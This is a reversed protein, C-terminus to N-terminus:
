RYYGNNDCTKREAICNKTRKNMADADWMVFADGHMSSASKGQPDSSLYYGAKTGKAGYQIDFTIAPIRVPHSAPCGQEDGYKVHDKHNPSDLNKGDWCDPFQMMFHLTAPEGCIPWNGNTSRAIGDLDGPGYFACYFQGQAGRPTPVKKKADGAIMRLGNPMPMVDSSSKRLSRYYVRFGTTEVPKKTANDYLTPVWYASHDLVPKCTTATFKMLDGATTDADVAKNGVFSHMHSAGALGPFVIPDDARRHSYQCDARFEPLDGVGSPVPDVKRAKYANVQKQWAARDVPIWGGRPAPATAAATTKAPRAAPSTSTRAAPTPVAAASTPPPTPAATGAVLVDGAPESEGKSGALSVGAAAVAVVAVGACVVALARKPRRRHRSQPVDTSNSM